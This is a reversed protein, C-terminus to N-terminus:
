TIDLLKQLQNPKKLKLEKKKNKQNTFFRLFAGDRFKIKMKQKPTRDGHRFVGVVSRLEWELKSSKSNNDPRHAHNNASDNNYHANLQNYDILNEKQRLKKEIIRYIQNACDNYYKISSKVLSFGNVDCVYSKGQSRLLDFGCVGQKFAVNIKRAIEKEEPTLLM